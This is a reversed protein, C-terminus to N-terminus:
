GHSNWSKLIKFFKVINYRIKINIEDQSLLKLSIFCILLFNFIGTPTVSLKMKFYESEAFILAM